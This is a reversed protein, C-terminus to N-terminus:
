LNWLLRLPPTRPKSDALSSFVFCFLVFCVLSYVFFQFL